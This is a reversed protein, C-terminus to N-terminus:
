DFRDLNEGIVDTIHYALLNAMTSLAMYPEKRTSLSRAHAMILNPMGARVISVTAITSNDCRDIHVHGVVNIHCDTILTSANQSLWGFEPTATKEAAAWVPDAEARELGRDFLTQINFYNKM